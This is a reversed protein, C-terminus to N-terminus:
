SLTIVNSLSTQVGLAQPTSKFSVIPSSGHDGPQFVQPM